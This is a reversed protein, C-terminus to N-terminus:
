YRSTLPHHCVHNNCFQDFSEIFDVTQFVTSKLNEVVNPILNQCHLTIINLYVFYRREELKHKCIRNVYETRKM